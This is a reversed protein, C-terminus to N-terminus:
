PTPSPAPAFAVAASRPAITGPVGSLLKIKAGADLVGGGVIKLTGTYTGAFPFPYTATVSPNVVAACSGILKGGVYCTAYQRAYVGSTDLGSIDAPAPALPQVAVISSEPLVEFGSAPKFEEDLITTAPDYTLLVSAIVYMRLGTQTEAATRGGSNANCVFLKQAAAMELEINETALWQSGHAPEPTPDPNNPSSAPQRSYCNEAMGGSAVANLGFAQPTRSPNPHLSTGLGNYVISVSDGVAAADVIMNQDLGISATTWAGPSYRCPAANMNRISDATDEFVYAPTVATQSVFGTVEDAWSQALHTSHPDMLYTTYDTPTPPPGPPPTPYGYGIRYIRAGQCDHAFDQPLNDPFHPKGDQAQHNPNTYPVVGIGGAAISQALLVDRVSQGVLAYDLYPRVSSWDPEPNAHDANIWTLLHAPAQDDRHVREASGPGSPVAFMPASHSCGVGLVAAAVIAFLITRM